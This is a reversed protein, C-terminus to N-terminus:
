LRPAVKRAGEAVKLLSDAEYGAASLAAGMRESDYVNMQCGYTRIAFRRPASM